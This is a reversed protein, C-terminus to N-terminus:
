PFCPYAHKGKHKPELELKQETKANTKHEKHIRIGWSKM